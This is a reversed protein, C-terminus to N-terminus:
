TSRKAPTSSASQRRVLGLALLALALLGSAPQGRAPRAHACGGAGQCMTDADLEAPTQLPLTGEAAAGELDQVELPICTPSGDGCDQCQVQLGILAECLATPSAIGYAGGMAPALQRADLTGTMTGGVLAGCDRALDARVAMDQVEVYVDGLVLTRDAAAMHLRAGDLTADHATAPVCDQPTGEAAGGIHLTAATGDMRAVGVQVPTTFTGLLVDDMGPPDVWLAHNLDLTYTRDAPDCADLSTGADGTRFNWGDVREGCAWVEVAYSRNPQLEPVPRFGLTDGSWRPSGPVAEGAADRLLIAADGVPEDLVVWVSSGTPADTAGPLPHLPTLAPACPDGTDTAGDTDGDPREEPDAPDGWSADDRGEDPNETTAGGGAGM